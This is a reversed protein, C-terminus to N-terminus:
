ALLNPFNSFIQKRINWKIVGVQFTHFDILDLITKQCQLPVMGGFFRTEQISKGRATPDFLNGPRELIEPRSWFQFKNM